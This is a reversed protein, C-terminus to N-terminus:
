LLECITGNQPDFLKAGRVASYIKKTIAPPCYMLTTGSDFIALLQSAINKAYIKVNGGAALWFGSDAAVPIFEISGTYLRKNPGGLSLESGTTALKFGFQRPSFAANNIFPTANISAINPFAM